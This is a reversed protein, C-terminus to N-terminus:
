GNVLALLLSVLAMPLTVAITTGLWGGDNKRNTDEM